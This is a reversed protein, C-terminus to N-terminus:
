TTFVSTCNLLSSRFVRYASRVFSSLPVKAAPSDCVCTIPHCRVSQAAMMWHIKESSKQLPAKTPDSALKPQLSETKGKGRGSTSDAVSNKPYRRVRQQSMTWNIMESSRQVAIVRTMQNMCNTALVLIGVQGFKTM